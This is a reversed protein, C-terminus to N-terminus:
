PSENRGTVANRFLSFNLSSVCWVDDFFPTKQTGTIQKFPCNLREKSYRHFGPQCKCIWMFRWSNQTPSFFEGQLRIVSACLPRVSLCLFHSFVYCVHCTEMNSMHSWGLTLVVRSKMEIQFSLTSVLNVGSECLFMWWSKRSLLWMCTQRRIYPWNKNCM